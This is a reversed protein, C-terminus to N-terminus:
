CLHSETVRADDLAFLDRIAQAYANGNGNAAHKKLRRTPEHLLKNVIREALRDVLEQNRREHGDLRGVARVVEARALEHAKRRLDTIVPVVARSTVWGFFDDVERAIIAEVEPVAAEREAWNGDLIAQLDDLEYRKVGPLSDVAEEVNRPLGLDIFLLRREGRAPLAAAVSNAHIIPKPAGTATVIVDAWRVVEGLQSWGRAQGGFKRALSNARADTRNIWVLDQAGRTRFARGALEAIEGAGVVVTRVRDLRGVQDQALQAAAHSISTASRGIGTEHRARKGAHVAQAFLRGLIPGAASAAQAQSLARAVQGLIQSEGLILSDLGSAVRLLHSVAPKGERVYLHSGYDMAAPTRMAGTGLCQAFAASGSVPAEAVLYLELRNCTSVIVAERIQTYRTEIASSRAPAVLGALAAQLGADKLAIQERMQVPATRHNLGVVVIPM